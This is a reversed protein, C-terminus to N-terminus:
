AARDQEGGVYYTLFIEELTPEHLAVDILDFQAAAKILPGVSGTVGCKLTTGSVALNHVGELNSFSEPSVREGFEIELSRMARSKLTDVSEVAVLRGQRIIGVRDCVQEVEPLIHSSVFATAGKESAERVMKGFEEQMLPDLGGTPEDMILLPPDHMFARIVAIKRRNGSSLTGVRRSLDCELREALEHVRRWYSGGPGRRRGDGGWDALEHVRRWDGGGRLSAAYTLTEEGTLNGYLSPDGAIYGVRRRVEVSEAQADMGLVTATGSTPRILDMLVRITTTKGAGNPGLYGFIEGPRVELDLGEVGVRSGYFKTLKDLRIAADM